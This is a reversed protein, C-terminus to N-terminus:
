SMVDKDLDLIADWMNDQAITEILMRLYSRPRLKLKTAQEYLADYAVADVDTKPLTQRQGKLEPPIKKVLPVRRRSCMVNLTAVKVGLRAAIEHRDWNEVEVWIKIQAYIEDTFISKRRRPAENNVQFDM